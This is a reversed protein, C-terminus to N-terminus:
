GQAYRAWGQEYYADQDLDLLDAIPLAIQDELIQRTIRAGDAYVAGVVITGVEDGRATSFYDGLGEDLWSPMAVWSVTYGHFYQHWAEHAVLGALDETYRESIEEFLEALQAGDRSAFSSSYSDLLRINASGHRAGHLVGTDYALLEREDKDYWAVFREDEPHYALFGEQNAFVKIVFHLLKRRAPLLEGYVELMAEAHVGVAGALREGAACQVQYHDTEHIVWGEPASGPKWPGPRVQDGAWSPWLLGLAIVVAVANSSLVSTIVM